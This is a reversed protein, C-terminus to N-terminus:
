LRGYAVKQAKSTQIGMNFYHAPDLLNVIEKIMDKMANKVKKKHSNIAAKNMKPTNYSPEIHPTPLVKLNLEKCLWHEFQTMNMLNVPNTGFTPGNTPHAKNHNTTRFSKAKANTRRTLHHMSSAVGRAQGTIKCTPDEPAHYPMTPMLAMMRLWEEFTIMKHPFCQETVPVLVWKTGDHDCDMGKTPLPFPGHILCTKAVMNPKTFHVGHADGPHTFASSTSYM